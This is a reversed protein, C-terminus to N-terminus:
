FLSLFEKKKLGTLITLQRQRDKISIRSVVPYYNGSVNEYVTYNYSSRYNRRRQLMQRGNADIYFYGNSEIDTDYRIIIEKGIQDDVPIPGVIWDIEISKTGNYLRFEQSTWNNFLILASQFQDTYTCTSCIM